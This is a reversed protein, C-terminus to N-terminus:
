HPTKSSDLSQMTEAQALTGLVLEAQLCISSFGSVRIKSIAGAEAQGRLKAGAELLAGILAPGKPHTAIASLAIQSLADIQGSLHALQDKLEM